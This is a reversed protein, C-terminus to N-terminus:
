DPFAGYYEGTYLIIRCPSRNRFTERYAICDGNEGVFGSSLSRRRHFGDDDVRGSVKAVFLHGLLREAGALHSHLDGDAADASRVQM